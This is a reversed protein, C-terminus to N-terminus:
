DEVADLEPYLDSLQNFGTDQINLLVLLKDFTANVWDLAGQNPTVDNTKIAIALVIQYLNHNFFEEFVPHKKVQIIEGLIFAKNEITTNV